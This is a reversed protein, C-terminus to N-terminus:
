FILISVQLFSFNILLLNSWADIKVQMTCTHKSQDQQLDVLAADAGEATGKLMHYGTVHRLDVEWASAEEAFLAEEDKLVAGLEVAVEVGGMPRAANCDAESLGSGEDVGRRGPM